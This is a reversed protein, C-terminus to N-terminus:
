LSDVRLLGLMSVCCRAPAFLLLPAVSGLCSVADAGGGGPCQWAMGSVLLEISDQPATHQLETSVTAACRVADWSSLQRKVSLYLLVLQKSSLLRALVTASDGPSLCSLWVAATHTQCAPSCATVAATGRVHGAVLQLWSLPLVSLTSLGVPLPATVEQL